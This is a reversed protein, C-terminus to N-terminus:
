PRGIDGAARLEGGGCGTRQGKRREHSATRSRLACPAQRGSWRIVCPVARPQASIAEQTPTSTERHRSVEPRHRGARLSSRGPVVPGEAKGTRQYGYCARIPSGELLAGSRGAALTPPQTREWRQRSRSRPGAAM